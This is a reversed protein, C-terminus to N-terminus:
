SQEETTMKTTKAKRGPKANGTRTPKIADEPIAWSKGFHIVGPIMGSCCMRQVQRITVDWREAAEKVSIYGNM